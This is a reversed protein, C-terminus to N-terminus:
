GTKIESTIFWQISLFANYHLFFICFLDLLYIKFIHLYIRSLLTASFLPVQRRDWGNKKKYLFRIQKHNRLRLSTVNIFLHTASIRYVSTSDEVPSQPNLHCKILLVLSRKYLEHGSVASHCWQNDSCPNVIVYRSEQMLLPLLRSHGPVDSTGHRLVRFSITWKALATTCITLRAYISPDWRRWGWAGAWQWRLM